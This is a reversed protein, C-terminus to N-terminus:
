PHSPDKIINAVKGCCHSTYISEMSSLNAETITRAICVVKQLKKRDKASCNSYWAMIYSSLISETTHRYFNTLTRISMSFDWLWSLFFLCQQQAKKVMADVHSTWSLNNTITVGLFKIGEIKEVEDESIYIPAHEEEKKRFEIIMNMM